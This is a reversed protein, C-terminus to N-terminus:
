HGSVSHAGRLLLRRRQSSGSLSSGNGWGWPPRQAFALGRTRAQQANVKRLEIGGLCTSAPLHSGRPGSLCSNPQVGIRVLQTDKPVNKLGREDWTQMQFINGVNHLRHLSYILSNRHFRPVQRTARVTPQVATPQGLSLQDPVQWRM